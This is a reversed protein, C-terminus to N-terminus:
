LVEFDLFEVDHCISNTNFIKDDNLSTSLYKKNDDVLITVVTDFDEKEHILIAGLVNAGSSIGVGLGLEVALKRAMIIADRDDILFVEDIDEKKVLEPIFDDGIGEIKHSGKNKGTTLLPLSSPEFAFIKTSNEKFRKSIGMLTGGTGIGSVFADIHGLKEEIERATTDYHAVINSINSFQNPRFGHIEKSLADAQEICAQFGGEERSVLVVNAGYLKMLESREKSVWDPLFIYVPHKYFAGLAAFSIGTNGSTAEVIPMGETLIGKEKADNIIYYAMRDKISGTFNFTELKVYIFREKEHYRYRIKLLPTNGILAGIEM